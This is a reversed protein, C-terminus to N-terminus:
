SQDQENAAQQDELAKTVRGFNHQMARIMVAASVPPVAIRVIPRAEVSEISDLCREAEEKSKASVMPPAIQYFTLFFSQGDFQVTLHNAFQTDKPEIWIIALEKEATVGREPQSVPEKPKRKKAM